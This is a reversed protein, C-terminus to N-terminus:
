MNVKYSCSRLSEERSAFLRIRIKDCEDVRFRGFEYCVLRSHAYNSASVQRLYSYERFYGSNFNEAVLRFIVKIM